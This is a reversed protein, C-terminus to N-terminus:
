DDLGRLFAGVLDSRDDTWPSIGEDDARVWGELADLDAGLDALAVWHSGERGETPAGSDVAEVAAMGVARGAAAVVPALALHRNTVHAIVLGGPALLRRYDAMAEVTLLHVPIADSSFADLVILDYSGSVQEHLGLRGDILRIDIAGQTNDLYTFWRPDAAIDAVVPDIEFFTMTQGPQNYAAISGAGLGVVAIAGDTPIDTAFVEGLPGDPHFYSLPLGALDPDLSQYGHVTTGHALVHYGADAYVQHVGFFTREQLLVLPAALGNYLLAIGLSTALAVPHHRLLLVVAVLALGGVAVLAMPQDSEAVDPAVVLVSAVVGVALGGVWLRGLGGGRPLALLAAGLIIPYEIVQDFVVPALFTVVLSGVAGGVALWLYFTSLFAPAPRRRVLAVHAVTAAAFLAILHVAAEWLLPLVLAGAYTLAILLVAVPLAAAAVAAGRPGGPAFALVFSLLYLVLPVMWLLPVAALDTSLLQTTGVVMASPVAALGVWVLKQHGTPSVPAPNLATLPHLPEIRTSTAPTHTTPWPPAGPARLALVGVVLATVLSVVYGVAWWRGQASLGSVPEVLLPYAILGLISGLNSAAYLVYPNHAAPHHTAAFWHSLLPSMMSTVVFVPGATVLLALLLSGAPQTVSPTWWGPLQIPLALVAGAIAALTVAALQTRISTRTVLLHALLYGLLLVVQFFVLSTSWVASSGGLEPLTLRAVLPQLVFGLAASASVALAALVPITSSGRQPQAPDMAAPYLPAVPTTTPAAM